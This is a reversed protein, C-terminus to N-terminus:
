KIEINKYLEEWIRYFKINKIRIKHNKNNKDWPKPEVYHLVKINNKPKPSDNIDNVSNVTRLKLKKIAISIHHIFM